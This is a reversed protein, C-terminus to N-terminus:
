SLTVMVCSGGGANKQGRLSRERDTAGRVICVIM